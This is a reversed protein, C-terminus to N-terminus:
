AAGTGSSVRPFALKDRVLDHNADNKNTREWAQGRNRLFMQFGILIPVTWITWYVWLSIPNIRLWYRARQTWSDLVLGSRRWTRVYIFTLLGLFCVINVIGIAVWPLPLDMTGNLTRTMVIVGVPLGVPNIILSLCPVLNLRAKFREWRTM